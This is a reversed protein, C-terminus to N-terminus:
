PKRHPHTYIYMYSYIYPQYGVTKISGGAENLTVSFCSVFIVTTPNVRKKSVSEIQERHLRIM